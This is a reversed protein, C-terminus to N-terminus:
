EPAAAVAGGRRRTKEWYWLGGGGIENLAAIQKETLKVCSTKKGARYARYTSRQTMCWVGIKEGGPAVDRKGPLKGKNAAVYVRLIDLMPWWTDPKDWWWLGGGGIENLAAIQEETLEARHTPTGNRHYRYTKRQTMCWMGIKEGGPAVDHRGPLKGNAAVFARLIDLNIRWRGRALNHIEGIVRECEQLTATPDYEPDDIPQEEIPEASLVSRNGSRISRSLSPLDRRLAYIFKSVENGVDSTPLIVNASFKYPALRQIRGVLQALNISSNRPELLVATDALPIDIGEVLTQVSVIVSQGPRQFDELIKARRGSKKDALVLHVRKGDDGFAERFTIHAAEAAKRTNCYVLTHRFRTPSRRIFNAVASVRKTPDGSYVPAILGVPLIAGEAVGTALDVNINYTRSDNIDYKQRNHPTGTLWVRLDGPFKTCKMRYSDENTLREFHHSEDLIVVRPEYGARRLPALKTVSKYVCVVVDANQIASKGHKGKAGSHVEITDLGVDRFRAATKQALFRTPVFCVARFHEPDADCLEKCVAVLLGTKGYGCCLAFKFLGTFAAARMQRYMERQWVRFRGLSTETPSRADDADDPASEHVNAPPLDAAADADADEDDSDTNARDERAVKAADVDIHAGADSLADRGIRYEALAALTFDILNQRTITVFEVSPGGGTGADAFDRANQSITGEEFVSLFIRRACTRVGLTFILSIATHLVSCRAYWKSQGIASGDFSYQDAGVDRMGPRDRRVFKALPHGDPVPAVHAGPITNNTWGDCLEFFESHKSRDCGDLWEGAAEASADAPLKATHVAYEGARFELYAKHEAASHGGLAAFVAPTEGEDDTALAPM